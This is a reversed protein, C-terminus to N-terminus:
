KVQNLWADTDQMSNLETWFLHLLIFSVVHNGDNVPTHLTKGLIGVEEYATAMKNIEKEDMFFHGMGAVLISKIAMAMMSKELPIHEQKEAFTEFKAM